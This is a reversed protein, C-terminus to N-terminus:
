TAVLICANVGAEKLEGAMQAGLRKSKAVPTSVGPMAIIESFVSGVVGDEELKRMHSLPLIYNPHAETTAGSETIGTAHVTIRRARPEIM